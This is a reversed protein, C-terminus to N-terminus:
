MIEHSLNVCFNGKQSQLKIELTKKNKSRLDHSKIGSPKTIRM